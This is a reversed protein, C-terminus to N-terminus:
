RPLQEISIDLSKALKLRTSRYPKTKNALFDHATAPAVGAENAWDLISWGKAELISKVFSERSAQRSPMAAPLAASVIAATGDSKRFHVSAKQLADQLSEAVIWGAEFWKTITTTLEDATGTWVLAYSETRILALERAHAIEARREAGKRGGPGHKLEEMFDQITEDLGDAV